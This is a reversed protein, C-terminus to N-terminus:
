DLGTTDQSAAIRVLLVTEGGICSCLAVTNVPTVSYTVRATAFYSTDVKPGNYPKCPTTPCHNRCLPYLVCKCQTGFSLLGELWGSSLYSSRPPQSNVTHGPIVRAHCQSSARSILRALTRRRKMRVVMMVKM